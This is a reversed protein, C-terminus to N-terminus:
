NACTAASTFLGKGANLPALDLVGARGRLGPVNSFLPLVQHRAPFSGSIIVSLPLRGPSRFLRRTRGVSKM